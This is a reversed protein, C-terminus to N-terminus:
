TTPTTWIFRSRTRRRSSRPGDHPRLGPGVEDRPFVSLTIAYTQVDYAAMAASLPAGSTQAGAGFQAAAAPALLLAAILFVSRCPM